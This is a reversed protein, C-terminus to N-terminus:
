DRGPGSYRDPAKEELLTCQTFGTWSDSLDQGMSIGIIMSADSKSSMWIRILVEPYM